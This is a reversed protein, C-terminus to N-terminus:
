RDRMVIGNQVITGNEMLIELEKSLAVELDKITRYMICKQGRVDFCLDGGEKLLLVTPIGNGWAYGLELHVNPNSGTLEVIAAVSTRIGSKIQELIDGTFASQDIRLPELGNADIARQIGYYYVDEMEVAFPMAVFVHRKAGSPVTVDAKRIEDRAARIPEPAVRGRVMSTNLTALLTMWGTAEFLDVYQLHRLPEPPPLDDLRVPILFIAGEPLQSLMSLAALIERQIYGMKSVSHRSVFVLMCDAARIAQGIVQSWDQGPMIDQTDLWPDFGEAKLSEYVREVRARDERAYSMFITFKESM